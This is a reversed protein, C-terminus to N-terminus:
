INWSTYLSHCSELHMIRTM